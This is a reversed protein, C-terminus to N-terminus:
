GLEGVFSLRQFWVKCNALNIFKGNAFLFEEKSFHNSALETLFKRSNPGFLGICSYKDTVDEFKIRKTLNKLILSKNHARALAPGIIRFYNKKLCSITLDAEIGGSPNLM